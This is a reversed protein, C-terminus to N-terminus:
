NLYSYETSIYYSHFCNACIKLGFNQINNRVIIELLSKFAIIKQCKTPTNSGNNTEYSYYGNMKNNNVNYEQLIWNAKILWEKPTSFHTWNGSSKPNPIFQEVSKNSENTEM